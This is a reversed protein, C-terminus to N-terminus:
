SDTICICCLDKGKQTGEGTMLAKCGFEAGLEVQVSRNREISRHHILLLCLVVQKLTPAM